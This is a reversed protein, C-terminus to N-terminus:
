RRRASRAQAVARRTLRGALRRALMKTSINADRKAAALEREARRVRSRLKTVRGRLDEAASGQEASRAGWFLVLHGLVARSLSDTQVPAEAAGAAPWALWVFERTGVNLAKAVDNGVVDAPDLRVFRLGAASMRSEFDEGYYRVHDAQGFRRIREAEDAEPDEDTAAGVRFPVQIYALGDTRLVRAIERMATTDDPIHELVHYCLMTDVSRDPLPLATLSAQVDVPRGDASPDFDVRLHRAPSMGALVRNVTPSPAIDLM